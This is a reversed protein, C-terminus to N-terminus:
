QCVFAALDGSTRFAGENDILVQVEQRVEEAVDLWSRTVEHQYHDGVSAVYDAAVAADRIIVPGAGAPRVTIVSRFATGLQAAANEAAFAQTALNRMQWGPTEKSAAREVLRRLSRLHEAGNTVAICVGGPALVRRLEHIASERDPVHYLMHAALVVDFADDRVPLATVDANILAPHSVGRLMGLSLDCGVARARRSLLPRLYAGNGCGADLVRMGPSIRALDLVWGVIDFVPSQQRWLQQRARLNRDDAYQSPPNLEV